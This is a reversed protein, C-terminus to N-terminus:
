ALPLRRYLAMPFLRLKSVMITTPAATIKLQVKTGTKVHVPSISYEYKKASIEIVLADQDQARVSWSLSLFMALTLLSATLISLPSRKAIKKM